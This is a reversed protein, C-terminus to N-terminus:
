PDSNLGGLRDTRRRWLACDPSFSSSASSSQRTISAAVGTSLAMVSSPILQPSPLVSQTARDYWWRSRSAPESSEGRGLVPMGRRHGSQGSVTAATRSTISSWLGLGAPCSSTPRTNRVRNPLDHPLLPCVYAILPSNLFSKVFS